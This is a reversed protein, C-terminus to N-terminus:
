EFYDESMSDVMWRASEEDMGEDLLGQLVEERTKGSSVTVAKKFPRPAEMLETLVEDPEEKVQVVNQKAPVFKVVRGRFGPTIFTNFDSPSAM